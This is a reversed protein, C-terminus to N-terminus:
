LVGLCIPCGCTWSGQCSADVLASPAPPCWALNNVILKSLDYLDLSTGSSQFFAFTMGTKLFLLFPSGPLQWGTLRVETGPFNIFHRMRSVDVQIGLLHDPTTLLSESFSLDHKVM